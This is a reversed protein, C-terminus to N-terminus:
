IYSYITLFYIVINELLYAMTGQALNSHYLLFLVSMYTSNVWNYLKYIHILFINM